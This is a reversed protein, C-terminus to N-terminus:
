LYSIDVGTYVYLKDYIITQEQKKKKKKRWVDVNLQLLNIIIIIIIIELTEKKQGKALVTTQRLTESRM